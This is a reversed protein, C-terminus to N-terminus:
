RPPRRRGTHGTSRRDHDDRGACDDHDDASAHHAADHDVVGVGDLADHVVVRAACGPEVLQL